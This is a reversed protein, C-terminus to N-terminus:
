SVGIIKFPAKMISCGISKAAELGCLLQFVVGLLHGRRMKLMFLRSLTTSSDIKYGSFIGAELADLSHYFSSGDLIQRNPLFATQVYVDDEDEGVERQRGMRCGGGAAM